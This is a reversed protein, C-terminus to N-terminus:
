GKPELYGTVSRELQLVENAAEKIQKLSVKNINREWDDAYDVGLGIAMTQGYLYALTKLDERAYITEAILAKKARKLEEKTVGKEKILKIQEEIQKELEEINGDKAPTAYFSFTSQGLQLDNYYSGVSSAMQKEVILNQYLRSTDSAGLIYSLLILPFAHEKGESNQSPALYYRSWQPKTVKEDELTVTIPTMHKPETIMTREPTKKPKIKGYYKEALPKLEKKTIDGSVILIANNPAYYKNYWDKADELTLAAIEHRWGILPTGYPHNQFLVAKMREGLLSHPKNDVRDSREELVVDREKLFEEEEFLLNEMRDAEMDMVLELKERAINQFYATYDFGTFANDNGGSRAVTRSFQGKGYRPTGKFMMHELVHAIGSKGIPEDQGGIKYWVMHSVAAVKTNPIVVVQMGNDLEFSSAGFSKALSEGSFLVMVLVVFLNFLTKM